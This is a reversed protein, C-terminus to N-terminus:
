KVRHLLRDFAHAFIFLVIQFGCCPAVRTLSFALHTTASRQSTLIPLLWL